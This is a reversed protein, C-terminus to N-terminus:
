RSSSPVGDRNTRRREPENKPKVPEPLKVSGDGDPTPLRRYRTHASNHGSGTGISVTIAAGGAPLTGLPGLAQPVQAFAFLRHM